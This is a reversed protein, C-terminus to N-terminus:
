DDAKRLPERSRPHGSTATSLDPREFLRYRIDEGGPTVVVWPVNGGEMYQEDLESLELSRRHSHLFAEIRWDNSSAERAFQCYDASTVFFGDPEASWNRLRRFRLRGENDSVLFGCVEFPHSRRIAGRIEERLAKTLPSM